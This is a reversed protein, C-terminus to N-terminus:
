KQATLVLENRTGFNIFTEETMKYGLENLIKTFLPLLDNKLTQYNIKFEFKGYKTVESYSLTNFLDFHVITKNIKEELMKESAAILASCLDKCFSKKSNELCNNYIENKLNTYDLQTQLITKSDLLETLEDKIFSELNFKNENDIKIEDNIFLQKEENVKM